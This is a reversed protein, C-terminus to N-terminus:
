TDKPVTYNGFSKANGTQEEVTIGLFVTIWQLGFSAIRAACLRSLMQPPSSFSAFRPM